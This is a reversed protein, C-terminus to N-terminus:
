NRAGLALGVGYDPATPLEQLFILALGKGLYDNGEDQLFLFLVLVVVEYPSVLKTM